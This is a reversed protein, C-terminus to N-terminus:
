TSLLSSIPQYVNSKIYISKSKIVIGLMNLSRLGYIQHIGRLSIQHSFNVGCLSFITISARHHSYLVMHHHPHLALWMRYM